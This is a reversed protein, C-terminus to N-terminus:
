QERQRSEGAPSAGGGDDRRKTGGRGRPRAAALPGRDLWRRRLGHTFHEARSTDPVAVAHRASGLAQRQRRELRRELRRWQQQRWWRRWWQRQRRRTPAFAATSHDGVSSHGGPLHRPHSHVRMALRLGAAGPQPKPQPQYRPLLQPLLQPQLLPEPESCPSAQARQEQQEFLQRRESLLPARKEAVWSPQEKAPPTILSADYASRKAADSLVAYAEVMRKHAIAAVRSPNSAPHLERALRAHAESLAAGDFPAGETPQPLGM